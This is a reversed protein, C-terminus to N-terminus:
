VCWALFDSGMGGPAAGSMGMPPAKITTVVVGAGALSGAEEAGDEAGGTEQVLAAPLPM